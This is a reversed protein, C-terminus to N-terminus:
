LRPRRSAMSDPMQVDLLIVSFDQKLLQKLAERGSGARVLKQGLPSLIAELALLNEPRDDVLLINAHPEWNDSMQGGDASDDAKADHNQLVHADAFSVSHTSVKSM